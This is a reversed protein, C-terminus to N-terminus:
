ISHSWLMLPRKQNFKETGSSSPSQGQHNFRLPGTESLWGTWQLLKRYAKLSSHFFTLQSLAIFFIAPLCLLPSKPSCSYARKSVSPPYFHLQSSFHCLVTFCQVVNVWSSSLGEPHLWKSFLFMGHLLLVTNIGGNRLFISQISFQGLLLALSAVTKHKRMLPKRVCRCPM